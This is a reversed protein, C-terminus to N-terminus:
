GVWCNRKRKFSPVQCKFPSKTKIERAWHHLLYCKWCCLTSVTCKAKTTNSTIVDLLKSFLTQTNWQGARHKLSSSDHGKYTAKGKSLHMSGSKIFSKTDINDPICQDSWFWLLKTPNKKQLLSNVREWSHLICGYCIVCPNYSNTM